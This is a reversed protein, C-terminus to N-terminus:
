AAVGTVSGRGLVWGVGATCQTVQLCRKVVDERGLVPDLLGEAAERTLDRGHRALFSGGSKREVRSAHPWLSQAPSTLLCCRVGGRGVPTPGAGAHASRVQSRAAAWQCAWGRCGGEARRQALPPGFSPSGPGGPGRQCPLRGAPPEQLSSLADEAQDPQAVRYRSGPQSSM